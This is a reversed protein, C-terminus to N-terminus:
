LRKEEADKEEADGGPIDDLWDEEPLNDEDALRDTEVANLAAAENGPEDELIDLEEATIEDEDVPIRDTDLVDDGDTSASFEMNDHKLDAKVDENKGPENKM